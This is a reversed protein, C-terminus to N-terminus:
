CLTGYYEPEINIIFDLQKLEELSKDSNFVLMKDLCIFEYEIKGYKLLKEKDSQEIQLIYKNM